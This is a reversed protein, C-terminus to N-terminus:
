EMLIIMVDHNILRVKAAIGDPKIEEIVLQQSDDFKFTLGFSNPGESQLNVSVQETHEAHDQM